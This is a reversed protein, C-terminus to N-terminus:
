ATVIGQQSQTYRISRGLTFIMNKRHLKSGQENLSNGDEYWTEKYTNGQQVSKRGMQRKHKPDLFESGTDLYKIAPENMMSTRLRNLTRYHQAQM